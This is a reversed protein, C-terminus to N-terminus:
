GAGAGREDPLHARIRDLFPRERLAAAVDDIVRTMPYPLASDLEAFAAETARWEAELFPVLARGKGTLAVERTRADAGPATEVLGEKRMETVTQSMASHTVDIQAALEKIPMPGLHHLRILAMSFRTRVGRVGREAYLQAIAADMADLLDKLPRLWSELTPDPSTM